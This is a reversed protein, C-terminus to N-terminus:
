HAPIKVSPAPQELDCNILFKEDRELAVMKGEWFTLPLEKSSKIKQKQFNGGIINIVHPSLNKISVTFEEEMEEDGLLIIRFPIPKKLRIINKDYELKFDIIRVPIFLESNNGEDAVILEFQGHTKPVKILLKNKSEMIPSVQFSATHSNEFRIFTNSGDGDFSGLIYCEAGALFYRPIVFEKSPNTQASAIMSFYTVALLVFGNKIKM